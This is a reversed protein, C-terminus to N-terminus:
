DSTFFKEGVKKGRYPIHLIILGHSLSEKSSASGIDPGRMKMVSSMIDFGIAFIFVPLAAPGDPITISIILDAPFPVKLVM